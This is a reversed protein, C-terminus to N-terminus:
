NKVNNIVLLAKQLKLSVGVIHLFRPFDHNETIM